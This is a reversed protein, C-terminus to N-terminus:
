CERYIYKEVFGTPNYSLKAKRLGELGMDEERNVYEVDPFENILFQQNIFPYLGQIDPNAKEIHILATDKNILQGLSFAELRGDVRIGCGCVSLQEMNPVLRKIAQKEEKIGFASDNKTSVWRDYMEMCEDLMGSNLKVYESRYMAKFQNIHNRKSHYKKGSLTRLAEASYVYDYNDRDEELAMGRQEFLQKLPGSISRIIMPKGVSDFYERAIALACNFDGDKHKMIPACICVTGFCPMIYLVNEHECMKIHGNVGWTYLNPFTFESCEFAWASTYEEITERDNLEIDRFNLM